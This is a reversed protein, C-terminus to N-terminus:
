YAESTTMATRRGTGWAVQVSAVVEIEPPDVTVPLGQEEAVPASSANYSAVRNFLVPASFGQHGFTTEQIFAPQDPLNIGAAVALSDARRAADRYAIAGADGIVTSRKEPTRNWGIHSFEVAVHEAPEWEARLRAM